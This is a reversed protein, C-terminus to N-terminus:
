LKTIPWVIVFLYHYTLQRYCIIMLICTIKKIQWFCVLFAFHSVIDVYTTSTHVLMFCVYISSQIYTSRLINVSLQTKILIFVISFLHRHWKWHWIGIANRNYFCLAANSTVIVVHITNELLVEISYFM